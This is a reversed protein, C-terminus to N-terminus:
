LKLLHSKVKQWFKLNFLLAKSDKHYLKTAEINNLIEEVAIIACDKAYGEVSRNESTNLLNLPRSFKEILEEAKSEEKTM